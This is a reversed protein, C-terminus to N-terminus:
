EDVDRRAERRAVRKSEREAARRELRNGAPNAEARPGEYMIAGIRREFGVGRKRVGVGRKGMM